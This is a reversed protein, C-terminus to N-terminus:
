HDGDQVGARPELKAGGTRWQGRKRSLNRKQKSTHVLTAARKGPWARVRLCFPMLRRGDTWGDTRGGARESAGLRIAVFCVLASAPFCFAWGLAVCRLKVCKGSDRGTRGGL